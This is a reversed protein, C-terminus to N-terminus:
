PRSVVIVSLRSGQQAEYAIITEEGKAVLVPFAAQGDSPASIQQPPATGHRLWVSQKGSRTEEWVASWSGDPALVLRPHDQTGGPEPQLLADKGVSLPDRWSIHAVGQNVQKWAVLMRKGDPTVAVAPLSM